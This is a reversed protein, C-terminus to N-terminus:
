GMVTTVCLLYLIGTADREVPGAKKVGRQRRVGRQEDRRSVGRQAQVLEREGETLLLDIANTGSLLRM